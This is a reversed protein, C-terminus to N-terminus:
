GSAAPSGAESPRPTPAQSDKGRLWRLFVFLDDLVTADGVESKEFPAIGFATRAADALALEAAARDSAERSKAGASVDGGRMPGDPTEIDPPGNRAAILTHLEGGTAATLTHLVRLPDYRKGTRPCDYIERERDTFFM